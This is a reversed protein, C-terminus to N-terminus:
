LGAEARFAEISDSKAAIRLWKKLVEQERQALIWKQLEDTVAGVSELLDIVSAAMGLIRGEERGDEILDDIAKCVKFEEGKEELMRALRKQEGMVVLLAALEVGDMRELRERNEKVYGYLKKKDKRFKIMDFIQQLCSDFVNTDEVRDVAVLNIKYDPLYQRLVAEEEGKGWFEMMEYLSKAGDWDEGLYLVTTIVPSLRDEKTIGSLFSDGKLIEGRRKHEKELDQVQNVYELADYLMNRVPMAYHVAAQNEEAFIVSYTGMDARMRVDGRRELAHIKGNKTELLIGTQGSINELKEPRLVKRGKYIVGNVLDAFIEKRRMLRNVAVDAKGM